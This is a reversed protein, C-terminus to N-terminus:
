PRIASENGRLIAGWILPYTAETQGRYQPRFGFLVVHGRGKTVDVLAAKGSLRQAGLLWGSLLQGSGRPYRAVVTAQTPDTIDFAPSNQFWVSAVPATFTRAVPHMKEVDLAVISGPAYFDTNRVGTLVNRVPLNMTEIAYETAANFALLTGGADVFAALAAAGSEGLGGRLSDPYTSGLGRAIGDPSQDPLIIADYKAILDGGRVERDRLTTFPIRYTDFVYRTWGEDMSANYSQYIGVRKAGAGSLGPASFEPWRVEAVPRTTRPEAGMVTAVDVGFLLPLTHATVDYPRKPPGGPYEFLNPYKQRELLSKAYGGFPQRTLAVYSGTPYTKGDVTVPATNERIEVQGHQLTWIMRQLSAQSAQSKPIVFASPWREVGWPPMTGLARDGMAAYSALWTRRDRAANVFLAWSASVQYDVIDAYGWKGGPWPAPFNWTARQADYGRATGLREFPVDVATALRASATETLIRAGRHVLSYQRGPSWMDYSANNAVGTKGDAILRWTMQLGLANTSATLIPDINPEVPDMYPPVFIRGANGGQQHVDNVIQPNWPTYLSDVTARTEPQTFAYWDRNNDHGTYHHYLEPPSTGEAPTDLTARYWDGVIDVGDPNQSPVLMIITNALIMRAEADAARALRDALVLPTTYGGVENAHIASTVLIVNKGQEILTERSDRATRQRPDMLKRQITRFRELNALTSSDAIFAVIFPRGQVTKGITRVSVRSSAKDLAAFYDTVQKWNPLKRDTGPKFGLSQELSPLRDALAERQAIVPKATMALLPAVALAIRALSSYRIM